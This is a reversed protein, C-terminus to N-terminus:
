WDMRVRTGSRTELAGTEIDWGARELQKYVDHSLLIREVVQKTRELGEVLSEGEERGEAWSHVHYLAHFWGKLMEKNGAGEKIVIYCSTDPAPVSDCM